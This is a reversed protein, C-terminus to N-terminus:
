VISDTTITLMGSDICLTFHFLSFPFFSCFALKLNTIQTKFKSTFM